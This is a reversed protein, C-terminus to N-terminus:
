ECNNQLELHFITAQKLEKNFLLPFCDRLFFLVLFIVFTARARNLPATPCNTDQSVKQKARSNIDRSSETSKHHPVKQPSLLHTSPCTIFSSYHPKIKPSHIPSSTLRTPRLIQASQDYKTSLLSLTKMWDEKLDQQSFKWRLREWRVFVKM